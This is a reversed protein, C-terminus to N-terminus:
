LLYAWAISLAGGVQVFIAPVGQPLDLAEYLGDWTGLIFLVGVLLDVVADTRLVTRARDATV